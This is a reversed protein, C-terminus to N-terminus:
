VVRKRDVVFGWFWLVGKRLISNFIIITFTITFHINIQDNMKRNNIFEKILLVVMVLKLKM